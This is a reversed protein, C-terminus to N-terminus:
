LGRFVTLDWLEYLGPDSGPDLRVSNAKLPEDNIMLLVLYLGPALHIARSDYMETGHANKGFCLADVTTAAPARMIASIWYNGTTEPADCQVIVQPDEGEALFEVPRESRLMTGNNFSFRQRDAGSTTAIAASNTAVAWDARRVDAWAALREAVSVDSFYALAGFWYGHLQGNTPAIAAIADRAAQSAFLLFNRPNSISGLRSLGGYRHPQPPLRRFAEIVTKTVSATAVLSPDSATFDYRSFPELRKESRGDVQGRSIKAAYEEYSRTFYHNLRILRESRFEAKQNWVESLRLGSDNVTKNTTTECNHVHVMRVSAPRVLCKTIGALNEECHIYNEVISGSPRVRHGSHGFMKWFVLLQDADVNALLDPITAHEKLVYFEDIDFFSMWTSMHGFARLAFGYADIQGPFLPWHIYTVIGYNIFRKLIDATDDTSGNDFVVFHEFGLNLHHCIWEELYSAEDKVIAVDVLKFLPEM